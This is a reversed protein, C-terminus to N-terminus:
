LRVQSRYPCIVGISKAELGCIQLGNVILSTLEAEEKNIIGGGERSKGQSIELGIFAGNSDSGILDTNIFVVPKVPNLVPLLWGLGVTSNDRIMNRLVRPFSPLLLKKSSVDDNACKLRGKYVVLNCLHCIDEHMRYQLTLKAVADPFADALRKLM